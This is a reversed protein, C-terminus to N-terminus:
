ASAIVMRRCWRMVKRTQWKPLFRIQEATIAIDGAILHSVPRTSSLAELKALTEAEREILNAWRTLALTRERPRVSGWKSTKLAQKATQVARDVMDENAIPCGAYAKGDSPRYMDLAGNADVLADGIFHGIPLAITDPDFSLTM